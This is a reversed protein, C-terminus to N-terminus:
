NNTLISIYTSHWIKSLFALHPSKTAGDKRKIRKLHKLPSGKEIGLPERKFRNVQCNWLSLLGKEKAM